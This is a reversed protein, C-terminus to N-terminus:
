TDGHYIMEGDLDLDKFGDLSRLLQAPVTTNVKKQLQCYQSDLLPHTFLCKACSDKQSCNSCNRTLLANRRRKEINRTIQVLPMGVNGVPQGNWCTKVNGHTDIIVTELRRCNPIGDEWRCLSGLYPFVPIDELEEGDKRKRALQSLLRHLALTGTEESDVAFANLPNYRPPNPSVATRTTVRHLPVGCQVGYALTRYHLLTVIGDANMTQYYGHYYVTPALYRSIKEQNLPYSQRISDSSPYIHLFVGNIVLYERLWLVLEESLIESCLIITKFSNDRHPLSQANDQSLELALSRLNAKDTFVAFIENSSKPALPIGEVDYSHVTKYHVRNRCQEVKVGHRPSFDFAPTGPRAQFINHGYLDIYPALSHLFEMTQRADEPSETPMGLMISTYVNKFGIKKALKVYKELRHIFEKEKEYHPDGAFDPPRVKGMKRLIRPVASELSFEISVIGAEKMLHLLEEDVKDCRTLCAFSLKIKNEIIKRCIEKARRPLLTFTDDFIDLIGNEGPNLYRSIYDLEEVIRDPSHTAITHNSMLPCVCFSCRQNCGRATIIGLKHSDALGTLYPSPYKDLFDHVGRNDAYVSRDPNNYIDEGDRYTIGRVQDLPSQGPQFNADDLLPILELCTEEGENRVCIDVFPNTELITRAHLTPLLGGFIVPIHPAVEKIKGAILQGLFYNSNDITFGVMHPNLELVAATCRNITLPESSVFQSAAIGKQNLYSIIFASGLCMRFWCRANEASASVAPPYVFIIHPRNVM